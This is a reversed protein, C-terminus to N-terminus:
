RPSDAPRRGHHRGDCRQALGGGGDPVRPRRRAPDPHGRASLAARARCRCRVRTAGTSGSAAPRSPRKLAVALRTIEDDSSPVPLRVQELTDRHAVAASSMADVSSLSSRVALWTAVGAAALAIPVAVLLVTLSEALADRVEGYPAAAVITLTGTDTSVHQVAIRLPSSGLSSAESTFPEGPRASALDAAPLIPVRGVSQTSSVVTGNPAVVQAVVAEDAPAPLPDPVQGSQVLGALTEAESEARVDVSALQERWFLAALSGVGIVLGVSLAATAAITVRVSISRRLWWRRVAGASM